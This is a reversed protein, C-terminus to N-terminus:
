SRPAMAKPLRRELDSAVRASEPSSIKKLVESVNSLSPAPQTTTQAELKGPATMPGNQGPGPLPPPLPPPMPFISHIRELKQLTIGLGLDASLKEVLAQLKRNEEDILLREALLRGNQETLVRITGEYIAWPVVDPPLPPVPIEQLPAEVVIPAEGPEGARWRARPDFMAAVAQQNDYKPPPFKRTNEIIAADWDNLVQGTKYISIEEPNEDPQHRDLPESKKKKETVLQPNDIYKVFVPPLKFRHTAEVKKPQNFGEMGWVDEMYKFVAYPLQAVGRIYGYVRGYTMQWRKSAEAYSIGKRKLYEELPFGVAVHTEYVSGEAPPKHKAM